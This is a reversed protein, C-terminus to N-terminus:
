LASAFVVDYPMTQKLIAWAGVLGNLLPTFKVTDAELTEYIAPNVINGQRATAWMKLGTIRKRPLGNKILQNVNENTMRDTPEIILLTGGPRVCKWLSNLGSVKDGLVALLSAASVVDASEMPLNFADGTKFDISLGQRTAIWKASQIMYVDADMGTTQYGREAALRAVLGPGCGVDLWIKGNGRPLSDVAEKHLNYYFDAGQLWTFLMTPIM